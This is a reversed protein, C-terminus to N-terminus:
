SSGVQEGADEIGCALAQTPRLEGEELGLLRADGACGGEAHFEVPLEDVVVGALEAGADKGGAEVEDDVVEGLELTDRRAYRCRFTDGAGNCGCQVTSYDRVLTEVESLAFPAMMMFCIVNT